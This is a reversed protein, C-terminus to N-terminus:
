PIQFLQGTYKCPDSIQVSVLNEETKVLILQKLSFVVSQMTACLSCRCM